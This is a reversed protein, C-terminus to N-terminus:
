RHSQLAQHTRSVRHKYMRVALELQEISDRLMPDKYDHTIVNLGPFNFVLLEKLNVLLDPDPAYTGSANDFVLEWEDNTRTWGFKPRLHFEGAYCVCESCNALRIHKNTTAAFFQHGTESFQWTNDNIVYNFMRPQIQDTARDLFIWKWLDEANTLRGSENRNATSRAASPISYNNFVDRAAKYERNWKQRKESPFFCSIHRLQIKWISYVGDTNLTNPHGVAIFDHRLYRCPGDFTCQPLEQSDASPKTLRIALHFRGTHQGSLGMIAHGGPPARYNIIDSVEFEGIHDDNTREDKSDYVTVLLKANM